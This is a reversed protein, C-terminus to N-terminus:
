GRIVNIIINYTVLISVYASYSTKVERSANEISYDIDARERKGRGILFLSTM